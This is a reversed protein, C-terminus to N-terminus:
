LLTVVLINVLREPEVAGAVVDAVDPAAALEKNAPLVGAFGAPPSKPFM